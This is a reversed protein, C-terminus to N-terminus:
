RGVNSMILLWPNVESESPDRCKDLDELKCSIHASRSLSEHLSSGLKVSARFNQDRINM